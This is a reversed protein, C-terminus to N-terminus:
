ADTDSQTKEVLYDTYIESGEVKVYFDNPNTHKSTVVWLQLATM